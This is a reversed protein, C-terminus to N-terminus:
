IKKLMFYHVKEGENQFLYNTTTIAVAHFDNTVLIQSGGDELKQVNWESITGWMHSFRRSFFGVRIKEDMGKCDFRM